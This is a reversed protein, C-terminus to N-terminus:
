PLGPIFRRALGDVAKTLLGADIGVAVFLCGMDLYARAKPEDPSLTGAAKGAKQIRAIADAVVAQVEPHGPNGLHGMSAALDSPGIFLGDIGDVALIEDLNRVGEASEIQALICVADNARHIYDPIRNWRSARASAVGVGRMGAPPYRTAAVLAEAQTRSEIMPVLFNQVGIDLLQKLLTSDFIPPRVVIQSPYASTAQLQGLITRLDNPAHEGDVLLWDFGAGACIEVAYPDSFAVWLGIQTERALLRDKFRNSLETAM